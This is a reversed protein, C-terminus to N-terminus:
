HCQTTKGKRLHHFNCYLKVSDQITFGRDMVDGPLLNKLLGCQEIVYM